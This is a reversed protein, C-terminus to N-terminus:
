IVIDIEKDFKDLIPQINNKLDKAFPSKTYKAVELIENTANYIEPYKAMIKDGIEKAYKRYGQNGLRKVPIDGHLKKLTDIYGMVGDPEFIKKSTIELIRGTPYKEGFSTNTINQINM